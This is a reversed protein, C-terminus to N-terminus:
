KDMQRHATSSRTGEEAATTLPQPPDTYRASGEWSIRALDRRNHPEWRAVHALECLDHLDPVYRDQFIYIM